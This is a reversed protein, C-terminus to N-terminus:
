QWPFESKLQEFEDYTKAFHFDQQLDSFFYYYDTDAHNVVADINNVGPNCIAGAPLAACKYTNYAFVVEDEFGNERLENGYDFTVDSQLKQPLELRNVFVSAINEAVGPGLTEKEVISALTVLEYMTMNNQECYGTWSDSIRDAFARLMTDVVEFATMNEYFDYTAPFLFGELPYAILPNDPIDNIFSYDYQSTDKCAELFETKTCVGNEELTTAIKFINYGEPICVKVAMRTILPNQLSNAIEEYSMNARFEYDGGVFELDSYHKDMWNSWLSDNIVIGNNYLKQSVSYLDSGDAITLTVVEDSGSVGNIDASIYKYGFFGVIAILIVVLIAIVASGKNNKKKAM